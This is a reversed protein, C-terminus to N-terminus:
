KKAAKKKAAKKKRKAPPEERFKKWFGPRDIKTKLKLLQEYAVDPQLARGREDFMVEDLFVDGDEIRKLINRLITYTLTMPVNGHDWSYSDSGVEILIKDKV